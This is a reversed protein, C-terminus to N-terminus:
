RDMTLACARQESLDIRFIVKINSGQSAVTKNTKEFNISPPILGKELILVAKLIGALGSTAELHGLNSKVSGVLVPSSSLKAERFITSIAAAEVPDGAPTGTGHAEVYATDLPNLRAKSYATRIMDEQASRSPNTLGPTKGDQNVCSGKVIARIPDGAAVAKDLPKLVVCAVGEGRGYGSGRDDFSYCRGDDSFFRLTEDAHAAIYGPLYIYKLMSMMIMVQPDLILNAGGVIAQESEGTLISQCALHFAVLSASCGTDLTLSPGKLDFFHSLRNAQIAIGTGTSGYM